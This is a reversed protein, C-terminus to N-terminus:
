AYSRAEQLEYLPIFHEYETLNRNRLALAIEDYQHSNIVILINKGPISELLDLKVADLDYAMICEIVFASKLSSKSEQLLNDDSILIVDKYYLNTVRCNRKNHIGFYFQRIIKDAPIMESLQCYIEYDFRLATILVFDYSTAKLQEIGSIQIGDITQGHLRVNRDIIGCITVQSVDIEKLLYRCSRGAGYLFIHKGRLRHILNQAYCEYEISVLASDIYERKASILKNYDNGILMKTEFITCGVITNSDLNEISKKDFTFLSHSEFKQSVLHLQCTVSSASQLAFLMVSLFNEDYTLNKDALLVYDESVSSFDYSKQEGFDIRLNKHTQQKISDVAKEDAEGSFLVFVTKDSIADFFMATQKNELVSNNIQNAGRASAEGLYKHAIKRKLDYDGEDNWTQRHKIHYAIPNRLM